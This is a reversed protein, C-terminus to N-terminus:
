RTVRDACPGLTTGDMGKVFWVQGVGSDGASPAPAFGCATHAPVSLAAYAGTTDSAMAACAREAAWAEAARLLARGVGARRAAPEVYWGEVFGVPGRVVGPSEDHVSVEIFGLLGAGLAPAEAVFVGHERGDIRCDHFFARVEAEAAAGTCDPWLCARLRLWSARDAPMVARILMPDDYRPPTPWYTAM